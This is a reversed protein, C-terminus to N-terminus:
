RGSPEAPSTITQPPVARSGPLAKAPLNERTKAAVFERIARVEANGPALNLAYRSAWDAERWAASDGPVSREALLRALRAQAPAHAPLARVAARLHEANASALHLEVGRRLAIAANASLLRTQTDALFWKAWHRFDEDSPDQEIAKRVGTLATPPVPEVHNHENLRQRAVAEVLDPLWAPARAPLSPVEWLHISGDAAGTALWRGDSSFDACDVRELHPLPESVPLGTATDWLRATRDRSVTAVLRGDPSFRAGAIMDQHTMPPAAAAGDELNWVFASYGAATLVRRGDPHFQPSGQPVGTPHDIRRGVPQGTFRNWVRATRDLSVTVIYHGDPTFAADNVQESHRLVFVPQGTQVDWLRATRDNCATLVQFGDPSFRAENVRPAGHTLFHLEIGNTVDWIRATGDSGATVLRGGTADFEVTRANAEHRLPGSLRQGTAASWVCVTNDFSATAIRQEDPSFVAANVSNSHRLPPLLERGTATEWFRTAGDRSASLVKKGDRSFRLSTVADGHIFRRSLPQDLRLDWVQAQSSGKPLTLVRAGDPSFEAFEVQEHHRIPVALPEGIRADWVVVLGDRGATLVKGGDPSFAVCTVPQEHRLPPVLLEFTELNFLQAGFGGTGVLLQREDPSFASAFGLTNGLDIRNTLFWGSPWHFFRRGHALILHEGDPTFAAHRPVQFGRINGRLQEGTASNWVMAAGEGVSVFYRGDASFNVCLVENRHLVKPFLALQGSAVNWLRIAPGSVTLLTRGDPSFQLRDVPGDHHLAPGASQGDAVRWLRAVGDAAGTAVLVGDPSFAAARVVAQHHLSFKVQGTQADWIKTEREIAATLICRGDPSYRATRIPRGQELPPLAPLCFGRTSLVSQIRAAAVANSPNRRLLRALYALPLEVRRQSLLLEARDIEARERQEAELRAKEEARQRERAESQALGEARQREEGELRAHTEARRWQWTVGAFGAAFVIVLAAIAAALGPKRQCWRWAREVVGTPRATIPEHRTFRELDEAMEVASGYRRAPDKELCKLCITALDAPVAPNLTTPSAPEEEIVKRITQAVSEAQFSPRGTLLEYFIGGLSYVDSATTADRAHGAAVEPAMYNPSGMIAASHTLSSDYEMMKALGFDTVHPQGNRDILINGPKLDRHLVGHQHAYHVARAITALLPAAEEVKYCGVHPPESSKSNRIESKPDPTLAEEHRSGRTIHEALSGGEVLKMSYFHHGEHEGIEFIPVIHPHDLKAAAEAEVYFRRVASASAFEGALIVKLAVERRLSVQRARYVVGMGGRGLEELIEYDGLYRLRAGPLPADGDGAGSMTEVDAKLRAM